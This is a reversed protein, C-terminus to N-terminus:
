VVFDWKQNKIYDISAEAHSKLKAGGMANTEVDIQDGTSKAAEAILQPMNHAATYSNGLFLVKKPQGSSSITIFLFIPGLCISKKLTFLKMSMGVFTM